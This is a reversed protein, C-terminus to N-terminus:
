DHVSLMPGGHSTGVVEAFFMGSLSDSAAIPGASFSLEELLEDSLSSM